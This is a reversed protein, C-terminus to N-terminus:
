LTFTKLRKYFDEINDSPNIGLLVSETVPFELAVQDFVTKLEKTIKNIEQEDINTNIGAVTMHPHFELIENDKYYQVLKKGIEKQFIVLEKPYIIDLFLVNYGQKQFFDMGGIKLTLSKLMNKSEEIIKSIESLADDTQEDLYYITIHPELKESDQLTLNPDIEKLKVQLDKYADLFRASTPIGLFCNKYKM